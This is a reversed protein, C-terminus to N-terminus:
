SSAARRLAGSEADGVAGPLRVPRRSTGAEAGRAAPQRARTAERSRCRRATSLIVGRRMPGLADQTACCRNTIHNLWSLEFLYGEDSVGPPNYRWSTSSRTSCRPRATSTRRPPAGAAPQLQAGDAARRACVAAVPRAHRADDRAFARTDRLTPGLARAGPGLAKLGTRLQAGRKASAWRRRRGRTRRPAAAADRWTRTRTRSRRSSRTAPTSSTRSSSTAQRGLEVALLSLNHM